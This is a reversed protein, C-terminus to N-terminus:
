RKTVEVVYGRTNDVPHKRNFSYVHVIHLNCFKQKNEIDYEWTINCFKRKVAWCQGFTNVVIM